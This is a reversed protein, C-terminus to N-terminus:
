NKVIKKLKKSNKEYVKKKILWFEFLTLLIIVFTIQIQNQLLHLSLFIKM